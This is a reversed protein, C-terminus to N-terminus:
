IYLFVIILQHVFYHMLMKALSVKKKEKNPDSLLRLTDPDVLRKDALLESALYNYKYDKLIFEKLKKYDKERNNTLLLVALKSIDDPNMLRPLFTLQEFPEYTVSTTYKTIDDYVTDIQDPYNKILYDM